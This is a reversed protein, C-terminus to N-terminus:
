FPSWALGANGLQSWVDTNPDPTSPTASTVRGFQDVRIRLDVKSRAPKAPTWPGEKAARQRDTGYGGEAVERVGPFRNLIPIKAEWQVFKTRAMLANDIGQGLAVFANALTVVGKAFAVWDVQTALAKLRELLPLLAAAIDTAWKQLRGDLAAKNLYALLTTLNTKIWSFITTGGVPATAIRLQFNTWLDSLNSMMGAYTRSMADMAGRFRGSFIGLLTKRIGAATKDSVVTIDKGAQSYTFRVKNGQQQAKVGFEKIREFEGGQADAIMEVADMLDKNMAASTDGLTRLTGDVPDIGYAKLRVFADTVGALEYPTTQAFDSVWAMAKKAKAQSGEVTTLVTEFQEFQSATKISGVGLAASAAIAAAGTVAAAKVGLGALKGMMPSKAVAAMRARLGGLARGATESWRTLRAQANALQDTRAKAQAAASGTQQQARGVAATATALAAAPRVGRGVAETISKVSRAVGRAPSSIRDVAQLILKFILNSM